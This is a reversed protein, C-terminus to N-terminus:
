SEDLRESKWAVSLEAMEDSRRRPLGDDIRYWPLQRDVWIHERPRVAEPHDLSCVDVNIAWEKAPDVPRWVIRSGCHPCFGREAKPSSAYFKLPEGTFRLTGAKIPVGIEAPQGSTRQCDRCHCYYASLLFAEAEYRVAGCYCGGTVLKAVDQVKDGRRRGGHPRSLFIM